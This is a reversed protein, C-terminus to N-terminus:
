LYKQVLKRLREHDEQKMHVFEVGGGDPGINRVVATFHIKRLGSRVELQVSDGVNLRSPSELYAGGLSITKVRVPSMVQPQSGVQARLPSELPIRTYRRPVVFNGLPAAPSEFAARVRASTPTDDLMALADEAAARLGAPEVFTLGERKGSLQHLLESAEVARLRGLAEIAKIRVFQDRLIEHEGAAIEMLMPVATTEQGIGIQDIMMPVVLPHADALIASFVFAASQASPANAPRALESVALDQLNWEWSAMARTLGRLLRDPDAAALLKIAASVRQRRAEFLRTELLTLVPVGIARLLRAMPPILEPGRPDTLLLTLRDLLREPDRQLLRPLTPDLARNALAADVLLMWRDNAVLRHGLAFLYEHEADHPVRELGTLINEFGTFDGRMVAIRGLTELFASLLASTEPSHEKGLAALTGLSLEEPLQNPWLSELLHTLEGLGAAVIRRTGGDPHELRRAYNLLISRAERRPADAGTEVLEGLTQRISSIPVCWIDQGRLVISKERPPLELWFNEILQERYAESAWSTALTSLHQSSHPGYYGGADVLVGALQYLMPRVAVPALSGNAFESTMYELVLSQSLRRLYIQPLEGEQPTYHTMSALLLRVTDKSAQAMSAHIARGAEEPSLGRATEMPTTLQGVLRLTENFQELQPSQIPADGNDVPANGGYAVLAAILSALVTDVKRETLTNIQIGEVRNERLIDAWNTIPNRRTTEESRLLSTKLLQVLTDLEGVHFKPAFWLTQIGVRQLETALAHFEGRSDPLHAESVKAVIIGGREPRIALGGLDAASRRLSDYASDLSEQLRPHSTNYLRHARLLLLFDRLAQIADALLPDVARSGDRRLSGSDNPSRQGAPRGARDDM